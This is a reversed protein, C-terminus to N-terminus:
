DERLLILDEVVPHGGGRSDVPDDVVGGDEFELARAVATLL